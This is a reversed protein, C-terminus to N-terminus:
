VMMDPATEYEMHLKTVLYRALEENGRNARIATYSAFQEIFSQWGAPCRTTESALRAFFYSQILVRDIYEAQELSVVGEAHDYYNEFEFIQPRPHTALEEVAKATLILKAGAKQLIGFLNRTTQNEPAVYQESLASVLFDTGIYLNFKSSITKFYEIM